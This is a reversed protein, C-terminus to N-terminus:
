LINVTVTVAHLLTHLIIDSALTVALEWTKQELPVGSFPPGTPDM